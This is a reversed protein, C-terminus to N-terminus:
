RLMMSEERVSADVYVPQVDTRVIVRSRSLGLLLARRRVALEIAWAIM